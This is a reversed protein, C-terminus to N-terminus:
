ILYHTSNKYINKICKCFATMSIESEDTKVYYQQLKDFAKQAALKLPTNTNGEIEIFNDLADMLFNYAPIVINM